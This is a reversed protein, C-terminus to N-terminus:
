MLGARFLDHINLAGVVKRENTVIISTIKKEQILSLSAQRGGTLELYVEALLKADLLAGHKERISLDIDFRKCLADLSAAAGPIKERALQVTDITKTIDIVPMKLRKLESNLFGIDFKANHAILPLDGIFEIIEPTVESELPAKSTMENTIGHIGIIRESMEREPNLLTQFIQVGKKTVRIGAFEVIREFLPSLGTTELDFFVAGEPFVELIKKAIKPSITSESQTSM